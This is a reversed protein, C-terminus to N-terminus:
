FDQFNNHFRDAWLEMDQNRKGKNVLEGPNTKFNADKM